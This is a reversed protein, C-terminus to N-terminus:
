GAIKYHNTSTGTGTLQIDSKLYVVPRISYSFSANTVNVLGSSAIYFVRYAYYSSPSITWQTISSNFLWSSSPTGNNCSYTNSYCTSDVGNAYTYAYDSPYMLGVLGTWSTSRNIYVSTGREFTYYNEGSLSSTSSSGGLYWKAEAIQSRATANLGTSGFDVSTCSFTSGSAISAPQCGSSANYYAGMNQYISQTGTYVVSNTITYGSKLYNSPNLMMMLQSDTWDDSGYAATSSGVYSKKYDWRYTGLAEDRIIKIRQEYNGTGDDVSFVGIIRWTEGNFDIYNNPSSGIYRYDTLASTQSTADHTFTYMEGTNGASYSTISSSNAKNVLTTTTLNAEWVAYLTKSSNLTYSGGASYTASTASSSTSWGKFTYGSKTPVTSSLTKTVGNMKYQTSPAGSGGNANYTISYFAKSISTANGLADTCKLYRTATSSVTATGSKSATATITTYSGSSSTGFYYGTVGTGSDICSWTVAVSTSNSVSATISATPATTDTVEWLATFSRSGTSGQPIVGLPISVVSGGTTYFNLGKIEIREPTYYTMEWNYTYSTGKVLYIKYYASVDAMTGNAAVRLYYYGTDYSHTYTGSVTGVSSTSNPQVLYNYSSDWIQIKSGTFANGSASTTNDMIILEGSTSYGSEKSEFQLNEQNDRWGAFTYGTKTPSNLTITSSNVTYNTPNGSVSGGALDYTIPYNIPYYYIEVGMDETVTFSGSGVTGSGLSNWSSDYYYYSSDGYYGSPPTAHYPAFSNGYTVKDYKVDFRTVSGNLDDQYYVTTVTYTNITWRAYLTLKGSTIGYQGDVYVWTGSWGTWNYGDDTGDSNTTWGAFTYGTKSCSNSAVTFSQNYTATQTTPATGTGTGCSYSVTYTKASFSATITGAATITATAPSTTSTSLGSFGTFTYGTAATATATITDGYRVTITTSGGASATVGTTNQKTVVKNTGGTGSKVTVTYTNRDFWMSYTTNASLTPNTTSVTAATTSAAGTSVGKFTGGTPTTYISALTLTTGTPAIYTNTSSQTYNATTYTGSTGTINLLLNNVVYSNYVQTASSSVNGAADKCALYYTGAASVTKDVSMSTTSTVTTYSSSSTPASTGWYYSTVGVGDTCKLTATQSTSKLTSTKATISAVPATKDSFSATITGAATITATAPSTTSTSLGSFGTFTYGSTATATATITDGYRVTITTSGGASATVGTTNQKTVVKNTGGTGSKVTVTYTNRDFWMSYTNNGNLTPNTTSVTAATTSAAGTSVGKFTGGTPTTYISALTLTTGTPAIYTNTSSQTYNATTYTGSTGTINLLLNNVVYSNYVQTASTSVNGAADKCALYYTGAASVTKDVSM